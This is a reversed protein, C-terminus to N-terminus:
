GPGRSACGRMEYSRDPRARMGLWREHTCYELVRSSAWPRPESCAGAPGASATAPRPAGLWMSCNGGHDQEFRPGAHDRLFDRMQAGTWECKPYNCSGAYRIM